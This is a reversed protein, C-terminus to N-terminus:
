FRSAPEKPALCEPGGRGGVSRVFQVCCEHMRQVIRAAAKDDLNYPDKIEVPGATLGGLWVLKSRAADMARLSDWNHRDMLIITDAWDLDEPSVVKSRHKALSVGWRDSMKLHREPVPRGAKTHFGADRVQVDESLADRLCKAVFASRYINGYCVVLVRRIQGAKLRRRTCHRAAALAVYARMRRSLALLM